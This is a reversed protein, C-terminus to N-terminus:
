ASAPKRWAGPAHRESGGRIEGTALTAMGNEYEQELAAPLDLPWQLHCSLWDSRLAAQPMEVLRHALEVAEALAQATPGDTEARVTM